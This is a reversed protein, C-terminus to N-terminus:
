ERFVGLRSVIKFPQPTNSGIIFEGSECGTGAGFKFLMTKGHKFGCAGAVTMKEGGAQFKVWESGQIDPIELKFLKNKTLKKQLTQTCKDATITMKGDIGTIGVHNMSLINPCFVTTSPAVMTMDFAYTGLPVFSLMGLMIFILKKM